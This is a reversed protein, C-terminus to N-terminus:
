WNFEMADEVLRVSCRGDDTYDVAVLDFAVEGDWGVAAMYAEVARALARQKRPTLAAEPTTLAHKRRTKVEVFHLVEFRRAVIDLEYHGERWNRAEIEFGQRRLFDTAVDEGREGAEATNM